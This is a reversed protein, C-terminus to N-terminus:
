HKTSSDRAHLQLAITTTQEILTRATAEDRVLGQAAASRLAQFLAFSLMNHEIGTAQSMLVAVSRHTSLIRERTDKPVDEFSMWPEPAPMNDLATFLDLVSGVIQDEEVM